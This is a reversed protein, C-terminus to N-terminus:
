YCRVRVHCWGLWELVAETYLARWVWNRWDAKSCFCPRVRWEVGSWKMVFFLIPFNSPVKLSSHWLLRAAAKLAM